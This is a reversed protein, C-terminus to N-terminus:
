LSVESSELHLTATDESKPSCVAFFTPKLTRNCQNTAKQTDGFSEVLFLKSVLRISSLYQVPYLWRASNISFFYLTLSMAKFFSTGGKMVSKSSNRLGLLVLAVVRNLRITFFNWYDSLWFEGIKNADVLLLAHISDNEFAKGRHPSDSGRLWAIPFSPYIVSKHM